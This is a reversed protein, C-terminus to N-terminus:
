FRNISRLYVAAEPGLNFILDLISLDAVFGFKDARVQWYPEIQPPTLQTMDVIDDDPRTYVVEADILLIDRLIADIAVDAGVISRLVGSREPSAFFPLFRDIYFEFYPTRGYASELTVRHTNWWEGHTSVEVDRWLPAGGERRHANKAVPVTLTFVGQTDIITTRHVEKNRKDYRLGADLWVRPCRAMLAYYSVPAFFRPEFRVFGPEIDM